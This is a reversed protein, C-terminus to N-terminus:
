MRKYETVVKIIRDIEEMLKDYHDDVYGENGDQAKLQHELAMEALKVFGLYKADSKIAHVVVAYNEMDENDKYEKLLPMREDMEVLFDGLLENIMEIDGLIEISGDVDIGNERLFDMNM